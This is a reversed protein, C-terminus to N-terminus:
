KPLGSKGQSRQEYDNIGLAMAVAVVGAHENSMMSVKQGETGVITSLRLRPDGVPLLHLTNIAMGVNLGNVLRVPVDADMLTEIDEVTPRYKTAFPITTAALDKIARAQRGYMHLKDTGRHDQEQRQLPEDIRVHGEPVAVGSAENVAAQTLHDLATGKIGRRLALNMATASATEVEGQEHTYRAAALARQPIGAGFFHAKRVPTKGQQERLGNIHHIAEVAARGYASYDGNWLQRREEGSFARPRIPSFLQLMPIPRGMAQNLQFGIDLKTVPGWSNPRANSIQWPSPDRTNIFRIMDTDGSTPAGDNLPSTVVLIEDSEADRDDSEYAIDVPTGIGFTGETEFSKVSDAMFRIRGERDAVYNADIRDFAEAIRGDVYISQSPDVFVAEHEKTPDVLVDAPFPELETKAM